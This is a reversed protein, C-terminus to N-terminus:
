LNLYVSNKKICLIDNSSITTYVYVLLFNKCGISNHVPIRSSSISSSLIIVFSLHRLVVHSLFNHVGTFYSWSLFVFLTCSTETHNKGILVSSFCTCLFSLFSLSTIFFYRSSTTIINNIVVFISTVVSLHRIVGHSFFNHGGSFRSWSLFVFILIARVFNRDCDCCGVIDLDTPHCLLVSTSFAHFFICLFSLSSSFPRYISYMHGFFFLFWYM